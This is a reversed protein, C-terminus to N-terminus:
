IDMSLYISLSALGVMNWYTIFNSISISHFLQFLLPIVIIGTIIGIIIIGFPISYNFLLPIISLWLFPVFKLWNFYIFRSGTICLSTLFVFVTYPHMYISDLFITSIFRNIPLFLSACTSQPGHPTKQGGCVSGRVCSM